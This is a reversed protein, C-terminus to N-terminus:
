NHGDCNKFIIVRENLYDELIRIIYSPFEKRVLQNIITPWPISNFANKIDLGIGIVFKEETISNRIFEDSCFLAEVTSLGKRFGFQRKSLKAKNNSDMFTQIQAVLIREFPKAVENLLCIPRYKKVTDHKNSKPILVLKAEKWLKLFQGESICRTTAIFFIIGPTVM